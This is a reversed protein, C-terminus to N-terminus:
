TRSYVLGRRTALRAALLGPGAGLPDSAYVIEPQLRLALRAAAAAYGAYAPKAMVHSPRLPIARVSIRPHRPLGLQNGEFVPASLFTAEWGAEAMLM